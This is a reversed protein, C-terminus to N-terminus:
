PVETKKERRSGLKWDMECYAVTVCFKNCAHHMLDVHLMKKKKLRRVPYCYICTHTHTHTNACM